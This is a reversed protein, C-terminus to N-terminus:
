SVVLAVIIVALLFFCARMAFREFDTTPVRRQYRSM